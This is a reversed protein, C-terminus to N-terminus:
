SFQHKNPMSVEVCSSNYKGDDEMLELRPNSESPCSAYKGENDKNKSGQGDQSDSGPSRWSYGSLNEITFRPRFYREQNESDEREQYKHTRINWREVNLGISSLSQYAFKSVVQQRNHVHPREKPSNYVMWGRM